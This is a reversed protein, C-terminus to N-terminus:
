DVWPERHDISSRRLVGGGPGGNGEVGDEKGSSGAKQRGFFVGGGGGGRSGGSGGIGGSGGGGDARESARGAGAFDERGREDAAPAVGRVQVGGERVGGENERCSDEFKGWLRSVSEEGRRAHSSLGSAAEGLEPEFLNLTQLLAAALPGAAGRLM